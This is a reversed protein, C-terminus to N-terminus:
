TLSSPSLPSGMGRVTVEKWVGCCGCFGFGRRVYIVQSLFNWLNKMIMVIM